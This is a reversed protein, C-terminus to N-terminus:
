GRPRNQEAAENEVEKIATRAADLEKQAANRKAKVSEYVATFLRESERYKTGAAANGAAELRAAEDFVAQAAAFENKAAIDARVSLAKSRAQEALTKEALAKEAPTKEAPTKEVPTKEVPTQEVPTKESQDQQPTSACSFFLLALPLLVFAKKMFLEQEASAGFRRKLIETNKKLDSIKSYGIKLYLIECSLFCPFGPNKLGQKKSM